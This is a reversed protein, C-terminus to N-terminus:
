GGGGAPPRRHRAPTRISIRNSPASRHGAQDLAVVRYRYRTAPRLREDAFTTRPGLRGILRGNRYLAYGVVGVDDTSERWSLIARRYAARGQLRPETPAARDGEGGSCPIAGHDFLKGKITIYEFGAGNQNLTLRLAGFAKTTDSGRVLRPDQRVFARIGHGGSGVVFETPGAALPNGSADLPQFRQYNHDHGNLVLDVGRAALLQWVPIIRDSSTGEPGVTFAPHHYFVLTCPAPHADLDQKLWEYQASGPEFQNFQSTSDLSIIHWGAAEVSYFHPADRWYSFYGPAVRKTYEHNGLTPLTIPRFRGFYREPAYWNLYETATGQKYVDGLYLFLNPQWSSILNTVDAAEHEGGAGDGAAAVVFPRGAAPATGATTAFIMASPQQGGNGFAVVLSVPQTRTGDRLLATASLVHNGDSFLYTPLQFDFPEEYDSLLHQGDLEVELERVLARAGSSTLTVSVPADGSLQGEAARLCTTTTDSDHDTTACAEAAVAGPSSATSGLVAAAAATAVLV